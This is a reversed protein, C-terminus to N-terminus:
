VSCERLTRVDEVHEFRAFEFDEVETETMRRGWPGCRSPSLERLAEPDYTRDCGARTLDVFEAIDMDRLADDAGVGAGEGEEDALNRKKRRGRSGPAVAAASPHVVFGFTITANSSSQQSGSRSSGVLRVLKGLVALELKLKISYVVGKLMTELIYLSGAEMGLLVLDM